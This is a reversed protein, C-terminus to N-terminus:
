VRRTKNELQDTAAGQPELDAGVTGIAGSGFSAADLLSSELLDDDGSDLASAFGATFSFEFSFRSDSIEDLEPDPCSLDYEDSSPLLSSPELSSFPPLSGACFCCDVFSYPKRRM